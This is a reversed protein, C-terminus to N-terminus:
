DPWLASLVFVSYAKFTMIVCFHSMANTSSSKRKGKAIVFFKSFVRIKPRIEYYIHAVIRLCILRGHHVYNVTVLNIYIM